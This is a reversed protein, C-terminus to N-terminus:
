QWHPEIQGKQGLHLISDTAMLKSIARQGLDLGTDTTTLALTIIIHWAKVSILRLGAIKTSGESLETHHTNECNKDNQRLDLMADNDDAEIPQGKALTLHPMQQMSSVELTTPVHQTKAARKAFIVRLMQQWQIRYVTTCNDDADIQGEKESTFHLM